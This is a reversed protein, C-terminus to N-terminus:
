PNSLCALLVPLQLVPNPCAKFYLFYIHRASSGQTASSDLIPGLIVSLRDRWTILLQEPQASNGKVDLVDLHKGRHMHRNTQFQTIFGLHSVHLPSFCGDDEKDKLCPLYIVLSEIEIEWCVSPHFSDPHSTTTLWLSLLFSLSVSLCYSCCSFAVIFSSM